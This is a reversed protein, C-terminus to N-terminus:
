FWTSMARSSSIGSASATSSSRSIYPCPAKVSSSSLSFYGTESWEILGSSVFSASVWMSWVVNVLSKGEVFEKGSKEVWEVLLAFLGAYYNCALFDSWM